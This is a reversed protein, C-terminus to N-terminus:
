RAFVKVVGDGGGSVVWRGDQSWVVACVGEGRMIRHSTIEQTCTRKELSWFRLSADHGASVLERGDPSLSLSSISAPHALMNYTCQGSNADFFRIFRDEHGSIIVGEIGSGATGTSGTPGSTDEENLGLGSSQDLGATTAVVANVSTNITNDYTELSAMSGVEEGTRTNFVIIAADSYSVVFAEGSASLPTICTPSARSGDSRRIDHILTYHFPSNSAMNPQPSSPFQSGSSMSNGRVRGSGTSRRPPGPQPSTLQPPASVAWIKVAGDAAGSAVLIRDPTGYSSSQGFVAGLTAPLVCIAWVADSHGDLTAKPDVRGREWVRITADQGGSFIWGDGQARGGTSFNPSPSWSTLSLVAGTHGRHTFDAPVDLDSSITGIHSPNERPIHFRKILGDDGATCIEPEGPSGGGSFIVTRVTNLHGRLGYRLKFSGSEPKQVAGNLSLEQEASKRRSISTKRRHSNPGRNPSQPLSEANPFADTDPRHTLPQLQQATASDSFTGEGFDWGDGDVSARKELSAEGFESRPPENIHNSKANIDEQIRAGPQNSAPWEGPHSFMSANGEGSRVMPASQLSANESASLNMNHPMRQGHLNNANVAGQRPVPDRLHNQNLRLAQFATDLPQQSIPLGFDGERLDDMMPLPPSERPPMPNAPSVMLYTFEAQCQDLFVRLNDREEDEQVREGVLGELGPVSEKLREDSSKLKEQILAARDIKQPQKVSHDTASSASSDKLKAAQDKVKKELIAVYRKLAKQTADARRASGELAAIRSKMEQREIEWANRDREHRHWETQLFRMVGQLTYETAHPQNSPNGPMGGGSLDQGGGLGGAGPMGSGNGGNGMASIQQWSM